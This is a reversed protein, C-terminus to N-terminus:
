FTDRRVVHPMIEARTRWVDRMQQRAFLELQDGRHPSGRRTANGYALLAKARLPRAFEVAAYYTDGAIVVLKGDPGQTPAAVRVVGFPDGPAGNAPLDKGGARIRIADGWPVDLANFRQEVQGAVADLVEVAVQPDKIGRPTVGASDLRWASTFAAAM